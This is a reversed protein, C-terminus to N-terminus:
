GDDAERGDASVVSANTFGITAANCSSPEGNRFVGHLESKGVLGVQWYGDHGPLLRTGPVFGFGGLGSGGDSQVQPLGHTM